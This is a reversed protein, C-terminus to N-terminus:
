KYMKCQQRQRQTTAFKCLVRKAFIGYILPVKMHAGMIGHECVLLARMFAIPLCSGESEQDVSSKVFVARYGGHNHYLISDIMKLARHSQENQKWPDFVYVKKAAVDKYFYRAHKGWGGVATTLKADDMFVKANQFLGRKYFLYIFVPCLAKWSNYKENKEQGRLFNITQETENPGWSCMNFYWKGDKTVYPNRRADRVGANAPELGLDLYWQPKEVPVDWGLTGHDKDLPAVDEVVKFNGATDNLLRVCATYHRLTEENRMNREYKPFAKVKHYRDPVRKGFVKVNTRFNLPWLDKYDTAARGSLEFQSRTTKVRLSKYASSPYVYKDWTPDARYKEYREREDASLVDPPPRTAPIGKPRGGLCTKFFKDLKHSTITEVHDRRSVHSPVESETNSTSDLLFFSKEKEVDEEIKKLVLAVLKSYIHKFLKSKQTYQNQNIHFNIMRISEIGLRDLVSDLVNLDIDIDNKQILEYVPLNDSYSYEKSKINKYREPLDIILIDDDDDDDDDDDYFGSM